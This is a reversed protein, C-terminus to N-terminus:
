YRKPGNSREDDTVPDDNLDRVRYGAERMLDAIDGFTQPTWEVGDLLEQIALLTDHDNM